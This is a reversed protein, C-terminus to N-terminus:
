KSANISDVVALADGIEHFDIGIFNIFHNNDNACDQVRKSLTSRRNATYALDKNPIGIGALLEQQLWHNVLYLDKSGSGGRNVKTDFDEESYYTYYTDFIKSWAFHLYDARPTKNQEVFLVARKGSNIMTRLTPWTGSYVFSISDLRADKIAKELQSNSGNNEFIISVIEQPHNDLFTRVEKLVDVLNESGLEKLAHYTLAVGSPGDYTDIMLGRVGDELQRTISYSQNPVTYGREANNMANHTMLFCVETYNKDLEKALTYRGGTTTDNNKQCSIILLLCCAAPIMRSLLTFKM